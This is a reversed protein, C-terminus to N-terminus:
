ALGFLRNLVRKRVPGKAKWGYLIQDFNRSLFCSKLKFSMEMDKNMEAFVNSDVPDAGTSEYSDDCWMNTLDLVKEGDLTYLGASIIKDIQYPPM